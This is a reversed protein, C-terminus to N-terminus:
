ANLDRLRVMAVFRNLTLLDQLTTFHDFAVLFVLFFFVLVLYFGAKREICRLVSRMQKDKNLYSLSFDNRFRFLDLAIFLIFRTTNGILLTALGFCRRLLLLFFM